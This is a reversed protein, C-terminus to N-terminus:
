ILHQTLQRKLSIGTEIRPTNLQIQYHWQDQREPATFGFWLFKFVLWPISYTYTSWSQQKTFSLRHRALSPWKYLTVYPKQCSVRTVHAPSQLLYGERLSVGLWVGNSKSASSWNLSTELWILCGIAVRITSPKVSRAWLSTNNQM